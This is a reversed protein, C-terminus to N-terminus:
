HTPKTHKSGWLPADQALNVKKKLNKFVKEMYESNSIQINTIELRRRGFPNIEGRRLSNGAATQSVMCTWVNIGRATQIKGRKRLFKEEYEHPEFECAETEGVTPGEKPNSKQVRKSVACQKRIPHSLIKSLHSCSFISLNMINFLRLLHNWEDRTFNGKTLM